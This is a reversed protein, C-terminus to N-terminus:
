FDNKAKKTKERGKKVLPVGSESAARRSSCKLGIFAFHLGQPKLSTVKPPIIPLTVMRTALVDM